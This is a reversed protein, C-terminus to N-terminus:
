KTKRFTYLSLFIILAVVACAATAYVLAHLLDEAPSPLKALMWGLYLLLLFVIMGCLFPHLQKM